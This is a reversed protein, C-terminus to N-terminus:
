VQERESLESLLQEELKKKLRSNYVRIQNEPIGTWEAIERHTYGEACGLLIIQNNEDLGEIFENVKKALPHEIPEPNMYDQYIIKDLEIQVASLGNEDGLPNDDISHFTIHKSKGQETRIFDKIRNKFISFIWNRFATKSRPEFSGINEIVKLFTDYILELLAETDIGKYYKLGWNYLFDHYKDVLLRCGSNSGKKLEQIISSDDIEM